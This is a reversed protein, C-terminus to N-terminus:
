RGIRAARVAAPGGEPVSVVAARGSSSDVVLVSRSRGLALALLRRPGSDAPLVGDLPADLLHLRIRSPDDHHKLVAMRGGRGEVLLADSSVGGAEMLPAAALALSGATGPPQLGALDVAASVTRPKMPHPRVELVCWVGGSAPDVVTFSRTAGARGSVPIVLPESRTAPFGALRRANLRRAGSSLGPGYLATGSPWHYLYVATTEGHKGRRPVALVGGSRGQLTPVLTVRSARPRRGARLDKVIRADGRAPLFVFVSGGRGGSDFFACPPALPGALGRLVELEVRHLVADGASGGTEEVLWGDRWGPGAALARGPGMPVLSLIGELERVRQAAEVQPAQVAPATAPPPAPAAPRAPAVPRPPPGGAAARGGTRRDREAVAEELTAYVGLVRDGPKVGAAGVVVVIASDAAQEVLLFQVAGRRAPAEAPAPRPAAAARAPPPTPTPNPTPRPAAAADVEPAPMGDVLREVDTLTIRGDGDQDYRLDAPDLGAAMRALARVDEQDVKGDRNVDRKGGAAAVAAPLLALVIWGRIRM